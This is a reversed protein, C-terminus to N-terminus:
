ELRVDFRNSYVSEKLKNGSAKTKKKFSGLQVLSPAVYTKKQTKQKKIMEYESLNALTTSRTFM